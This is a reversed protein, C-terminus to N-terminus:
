LYHGNQWAPADTQWGSEPAVTRSTSDAYEVDMGAIGTGKRIFKVVRSIKVGM